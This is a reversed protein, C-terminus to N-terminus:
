AGQDESGHYAGKNGKYRARVFNRTQKNRYKEFRLPLGQEAREADEKDWITEAM